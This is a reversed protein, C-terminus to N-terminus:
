LDVKISIELGGRGPWIMSRYGNAPDRIFDTFDAYERAFQQVNDCFVVAGPRLQPGLVDMAPRAVPIWTDLLLFDVPGGCDRLTQLADGIRVEVYQALGAETLNSRAIEAKSPELESGIVEGGGNDRIAAHWSSRPFASPPEPRLLADPELRVCLTYALEAKALDLAVMKDKLFQLDNDSLERRKRAFWYGLARLTFHRM